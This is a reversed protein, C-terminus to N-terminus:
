SAMQRELNRLLRLADDTARLEGDIYEFRRRIRREIDQAHELCRALVFGRLVNTYLGIDLISPTRDAHDGSVGARDQSGSDEELRNIISVAVAPDGYEAFGRAVISWQVVGPSLGFKMMDRLVSAAREPRGRKAHLKVFPSFHAADVARKPLQLLSPAFKFDPSSIPKQSTSSDAVSLLYKYMREHDSEPTSWVLAEWVLATHYPTPWLKESIDYQCNLLHKPLSTRQSLPARRKSILRMTKLITRRPVGIMHFHYAFVVLVLQPENRSRHYLMEAMVWLSKAKHSHQFAKKRLALMARTRGTAHYANMFNSLFYSTPPNTSIIARRLYRLHSTLALTDTRSCTRKYWVDPISYPNSSIQQRLEHVSATFAEDPSHELLFRFTFDTVQRERTAAVRALQLAHEERGALVQNRIVLSYISAWKEPTVKVQGSKSFSDVVVELQSIYRETTPPSAYRALTNLVQSQADGTIYGKSAMILGFRMVLAINLYNSGRFLQQRIDKFSSWQEKATPVLSLWASFAEGRNKLGKTQLVARAAREYIAHPQIPIKMDVMEKRLSEAAAYDATRILNVLTGSSTQPTFVSSNQSVALTYEATMEEFVSVDLAQRPLPMHEVEISSPSKPPLFDLRLRVRSAHLWPSKGLIWTAM